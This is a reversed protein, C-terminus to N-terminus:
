CKALMKIIAICNEANQHFVNIENDERSARAKKRWYLGMDELFKIAAEKKM